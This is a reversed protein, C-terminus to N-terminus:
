NKVPKVSRITSGELMKVRDELENIKRAFQMLISEDRDFRMLEVDSSVCDSEPCMVHEIEHEEISPVQFVCGCDRCRFEYTGMKSGVLKFFAALAVFALAGIGWVM